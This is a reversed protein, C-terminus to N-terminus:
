NFSQLTYIHSVMNDFYVNNNNFIDDLYRSTINFANIIDTQKDESLSVMFDREYSFLFLNAVLLACNTGLHIGVVEIYLKTGVRM